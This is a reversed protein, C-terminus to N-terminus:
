AGKNDTGTATGTEPGNVVELLQARDLQQYQLVTRVDTWGAYEMVGKLGMGARDSAWRRRFAHWASGKLKELGAEGEARVLWKDFWHRDFPRTPDKTRAFLYGGRSDFADQFARLVDLVDSPLPRVATRRLKDTAARWVVDGTKWDVDEWRLGRIASLRRGVRYALVLATDVYWGRRATEADEAAKWRALVARTAEYRHRSTMPRRVDPERQLSVQALPDHAVWPRGDASRVLTAWRTMQKLLGLEAQVSRQRVPGTPVGELLIGGAKRQTAYAACDNAGLSVVTREAGLAALLVAARRRDDERSRAANDKWAACEVQFRAWLQGLTIPGERTAPTPQLLAAVLARGRAEAQTRETTGLSRRDKRGDVWVDRYFVGGPERQFVRVRAGRTGLSLTWKGNTKSWSM